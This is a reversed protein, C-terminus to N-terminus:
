GNLEHALHPPSYHEEEGGWEGKRLERASMCSPKGAKRPYLLSKVRDLHSELESRSMARLAAEIEASEYM